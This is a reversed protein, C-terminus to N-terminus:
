RQYTGTLRGQALIHGQMADLVQKKSAGAKLDLTQDLAYLTFQYRHPRSPPPCPGGYGIKGFDNKGQLSGDPLQAQAPVAEPLGRSDAPLNFLVWHTFVGVPADPDDMILAFSQTGVLPESWTIAPSVDQGECTYKTPIEGGEQFASSSLELAMEGEKLPQEESKCGALLVFVLCSVLLLVAVRFINDREKLSNTAEM